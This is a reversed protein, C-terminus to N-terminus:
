GYQQLFFHGHEAMTRGLEERLWNVTDGDIIGKKEDMYVKSIETPLVLIREDWGTMKRCLEGKGEFVLNEAVTTDIGPISIKGLRNLWDEIAAKWRQQNLVVTGLNFLPPSSFGKQVQRTINYSHVDYVVCVGFRALAATAWSGMFQYFQAYKEMSVRVIDRHLPEKYVQLGWFKETTLPIAEEPPRNLDYESRSDLGWVASGADQIMTDTEPDEELYRKSASITMLPLLEDRVLNGAHIATAICPMSMDIAYSFGGLEGHGQHSGGHVLSNVIAPNNPIAM